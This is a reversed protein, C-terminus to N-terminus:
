FEIIFGETEGTASDVMTIRARDYNGVEYYLFGTVRDQPHLRAGRLKRDRIIRSAASVDGIESPASPAIPGEEDSPQAEGSALIKRNYALLRSVAASPTLPYARRRSGAERLAIDSPDFEYIRKTGNVISVKVPLIGAASLDAEFDLVTSFGRVPELTVSVGTSVAGGHGRTTKKSSGANTHSRRSQAPPLPPGQGKKVLSTKGEHGREVTLDGRGTVGLFIGREFEQQNSGIGSSEAIIHVGDTDCRIRAEGSMTGREDSRKGRVYGPTGPKALKFGTIIMKMGIMSDHVYRNAQDCSLEGTHIEYFKSVPGSCGAAILAATVGVL